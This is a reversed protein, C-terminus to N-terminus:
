RVRDSLSRGFEELTAAMDASKAESTTAEVVGLDRVGYYGQMFGHYIREAAEYVGKAGSCLLLAMAKCNKPVNGAYTRHILCHMQGAFSGYYIPSAVVIVDAADWLPYVGDMDDRQVCAGGGRTHCHECGLCGHIDMRAIDLVDVEHGAERAGRAFAAAMAATGGDKRASGNLVLVRM